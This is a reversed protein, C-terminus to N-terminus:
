EGRKYIRSYIDNNILSEKLALEYGENEMDTYGEFVVELIDKKSFYIYMQENFVGSPYPIARYDIYHHMGIPQVMRQEIVVILDKDHEIGLTDKDIKVVSGLPLYESMYCDIVMLIDKFMVKTITFFIKDFTITVYLGIEEIKLDKSVYILEKSNAFENIDLIEKAGAFKEIFMDINKAYNENNINVDKLSALDFTSVKKLILGTLYSVQIDNM